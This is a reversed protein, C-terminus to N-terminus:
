YKISFHVKPSHIKVKLEHAEINNFVQVNTNQNVKTLFSTMHKYQHVQLNHTLTVM